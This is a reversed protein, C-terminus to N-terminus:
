GRPRPEWTARSRPPAPARCVSLPIDEEHWECAVCWAGRAVGLAHMRAQLTAVVVHVHRRAGPVTRPLSVLSNTAWSRLALEVPQVDVALLEPGVRGGGLLTLAPLERLDCSAKGKPLTASEQHAKGSAEGEIIGVRTGAFLNGGGRVFPRAVRTQSIKPKARM